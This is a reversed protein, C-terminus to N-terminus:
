PASAGREGTLIKRAPTIADESSIIQHIANMLTYIHPESFVTDHTGPLDRIEVPGNVWHGWGLDPAAHHILPHTGCRLLTLQGGYSSPRYQQVLRWSISLRERYLTPLRDVDFVGALRPDVRTAGNRQWGVLQGLRALCSRAKSQVRSLFLRPSQVVNMWVWRPFNRVISPLDRVFWKGWPGYEHHLGTDVVVLSGVQGGAAVLQRAMEFALIGGFSFGVLHCPGTWGTDLLAAVFGQAVDQLTQCGAWYPESGAVRLGYIARGAPLLEAVKQWEHVEGFLSPAIVLPPQDPQGARLLHLVPRTREARPERIVGELQAITPHRFLTALPLRVPFAKEVAALLRVALLSHGGLEFFNDHIGVRKLGLVEAWIAALQEELEDRPPVFTTAREPWHVDPAPLVRRDVKGHVTMPLAGLRLYIAPVMYDPLKARIYERLDGPTAQAEPQAVWYAVLRKDGLSDAWVTAVCQSVAPHGRLMAEIEELEIRFGRIKVQQDLRGLFELNGDSLWRVQDGTKYLRAGPELPSSVFREATLEPQKRYGRALGDGGLYLEGPVGIPVPEEQRDLVYVRTNAIPRGIPVAATEAPLSPPITYCCAFTTGETPGYGNILRTSAGLLSLARRVHPVSLAEGGVLLQELGRLAQPREDLVANFLSATLWLTQVRHRRLGDELEAFDPIGDAFLVCCGGHLLPAWIELTAADFSVSALQAMRLATNFQAYDVGFLLRIIARHPIEVGKPVGTSGSTYMVYALNEATAASRPDDRRQSAIHQREADLYLVSIGTAALRARLATHSLVLHVQSDALLYALRQAPTHPDLPLYAGGAKLVALLSTLRELSQELFIGVLVEPGVGQSALQHALQNARENLERYTWQRDQYIVAVAEPTRAAQEEFLAHVCQERPYDRQTDNWAV